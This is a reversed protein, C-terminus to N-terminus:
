QKKKLSVFRLPIKKRVAFDIERKMGPSIGRDQFVWIEDCHLLLNKLLGEAKVEDRTFQPFLLHPAVPCCEGQTLVYKCAKRAYLIHAWHKWLPGRWPSSVFILTGGLFARKLIKEENTGM